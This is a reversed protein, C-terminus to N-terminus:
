GACQHGLKWQGPTDKKFRKTGNDHTLSSCGEDSDHDSYHADELSLTLQDDRAPLNTELICEGYSYSVFPPSNIASAPDDTIQIYSFLNRQM